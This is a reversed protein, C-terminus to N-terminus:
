LYAIARTELQDRPQAGRRELIVKGDHEKRRGYGDLIDDIAHLDAGVIVERLRELGLLKQGPDAHHGPELVEMVRILPGIMADLLQDGIVIEGSEKIHPGHMLPALVLDMAASLKM